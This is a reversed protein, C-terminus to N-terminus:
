TELTSYHLVSYCFYILHPIFFSLFAPDPQSMTEKHSPALSSETTSLLGPQIHEPATSHARSELSEEELSTTQHM